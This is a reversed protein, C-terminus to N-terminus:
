ERDTELLNKKLARLPKGFHHDIYLREYRNYLLRGAMFGNYYYIEGDKLDIVVPFLDVSYSYKPRMLAIDIANRDVKECIVVANIIKPDLFASRNKSQLYKCRSMYSILMEADFYDAYAIFSSFLLRNVWQLKFLSESIVTIDEYETPTVGPFGDLVLGYYEDADIRKM